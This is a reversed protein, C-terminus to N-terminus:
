YARRLWRILVVFSAVLALGEIVLLLNHIMGLGDADIEDPARGASLEGIYWVDSMVALLLVVALAQFVGVAQQARVSNDRLVM